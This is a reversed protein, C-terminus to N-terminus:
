SSGPKFVLNTFGSVPYDEPRGPVADIRGDPRLTYLQYGLSGMFRLTEALTMGSAARIMDDAAEAFRIWELAARASIATTPSQSSTM